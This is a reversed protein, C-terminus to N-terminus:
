SRPRSALDTLPLKPEILESFAEVCAIWKDRYVYSWNKVNSIDKLDQKMRAEQTTGNLVAIGLNMVLAYLALEPSVVAERSLIQVPESSLLQPNGTLTWFSEYVIGYHKCFVRLADDYKTEKHFRNQVVAPKIHAFTHLYTLTLLPVNSIGLAKIHQPVYQELCNYAAYTLEKTALPAHILLVDIYSDSVSEAEERPRLNRLSSMISAHIQQDITDNPDYPMNNLNQGSPPTFKTQITLDKREVTGDVYAQRLAAGFLDERYHKPQAATDFVRFGASLAQLVLPTTEDKKWATGYIFSPKNSALRFVNSAAASFNM